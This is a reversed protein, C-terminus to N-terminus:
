IKTYLKNNKIYVETDSFTISTKSMQYEFKISKHKTNPENLFKILDKKNGTWIFLIDDIVRLHSGKSLHNYLNKQLIIWLYISGHHHVSPEWLM